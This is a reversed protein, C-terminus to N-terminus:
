PATSLVLDEGLRRKELSFVGLESLQEEYPKQELETATRQICELVETHEKCQPAWLQVCGQM